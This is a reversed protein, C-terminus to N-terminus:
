KEILFNRINQGLQDNSKSSDRMEKLINLLDSEFTHGTERVRLLMDAAKYADEAAQETSTSMKITVGYVQAAVKDRLTIEHNRIANLTIKLESIKEYARELLERYLETSIQGEFEKEDNEISNENM